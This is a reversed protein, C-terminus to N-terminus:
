CVEDVEGGGTETYSGGSSTFVFLGKGDWHGLATPLAEKYGAPFILYLPIHLYYACMHVRVHHHLASCFLHHRSKTEMMGRAHNLALIEGNTVGTKSLPDRKSHLSQMRSAAKGCSPWGVGLSELELWLWHISLWRRYCHRKNSEQVQDHKPSRLFWHKHLAFCTELSGYHFPSKKIKEKRMCTLLCNAVMATCFLTLLICRDGKWWSTWTEWGWQAEM